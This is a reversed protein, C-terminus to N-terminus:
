GVLCCDVVRSEVRSQRFQLVFYAICCKRHLVFGVEIIEFTFSKDCNM